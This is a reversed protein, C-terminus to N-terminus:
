DELYFDICQRSRTECEYFDDMSRYLVACEDNIGIIRGDNLEIFDVMSGGGTNEPFVRKIYELKM